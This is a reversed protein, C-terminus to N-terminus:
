FKNSRVQWWRAQVTSLVFTKLSSTTKWFSNCISSHFMSTSILVKLKSSKSQQNVVQFLMSILRERLILQQILLLLAVTLMLHHCRLRKVKSPQSSLATFELLNLTNSKKLLTVLWESTLIKILQVHFLVLYLKANVLSTHSRLVSAHLVKSQQSHLNVLMKLTMSGLYVKSKTTILTNKSELLMQIYTSSTSLMQSSLLRRQTLVLLLLIKLTTIDWLLQVKLAM